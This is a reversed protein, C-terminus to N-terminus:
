SRTRSAGIRKVTESASPALFRQIEGTGQEIWIDCNCIGDIKEGKFEESTGDPWVVELSQIHDAKGLGFHLRMDSQSAYGSGIEVWRTLKRQRGADDIAVRVRAGLADRNKGAPGTLGLRLWNGTSGLRNLFIGPPDDNNAVILDLRGDGDLDAIAMARSDEIADCGLPRAVDAYHGDGICEFLLNHEYGNWSNDAM